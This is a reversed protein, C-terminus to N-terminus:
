ARAEAAERDPVDDVPHERGLLEEPAGVPVDEGGACAPEVLEVSGAGLERRPKGGGECADAAYRFQAVAVVENGAWAPDLGDVRRCTGDIEDVCAGADAVEVWQGRGM